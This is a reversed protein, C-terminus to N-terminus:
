PGAARAFADAYALRLREFSHANRLNVRKDQSVVPVLDPGACLDTVPTYQLAAELAPLLQYKAMVDFLVKVQDAMKVLDAVGARPEPYPTAAPLRPNASRVAELLGVHTWITNRQREHALWYALAGRLESAVAATDTTGLADPFLRGWGANLRWLNKIRDLHSACRLLFSVFTVDGAHYRLYTLFPSFNGLKGAAAARDRWALLTTPDRRSVYWQNQIQLAFRADQGHASLLFKDAGRTESACDSIMLDLKRQADAALRDLRPATGTPTAALRTMIM